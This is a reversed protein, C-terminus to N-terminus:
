GDSKFTIRPDILTYVLDTLLNLVMVIVSLIFLIGLVLPYDRVEIAQIMLRGLGPWAFVTETLISGTILFSFRNGAVTIVPLIANQLSHNIIAKRYSLGKSLATRFYPLSIEYILKQRLLLIVQALQSIIMTLLPLFLHFIIDVYYYLGELSHRPNSIGQIPFINLKISFFLILLYGLWFTPISTVIISTVPISIRSLVTSSRASLYGLYIGLFSSIVISPIVLLLTPIIRSGIVNLVSDKFYYSTGFDGTFINKFYILAQITLPKDLEYHKIILDRYEKTVFDGALSAVPDGPAAHILFFTICLIIVLTIPIQIIRAILFNIL